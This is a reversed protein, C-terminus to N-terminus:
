NRSVLGLMGPDPAGGGEGNVPLILEVRRPDVTTERIASDARFHCAGGCSVEVGGLMM